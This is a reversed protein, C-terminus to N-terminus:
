LLLSMIDDKKIILVKNPLYQKMFDNNVYDRLDFTIGSDGIKEAYEYVIEKMDIEGKEDAFLKLVNDARYSNQKVIIKLTSNIMKDSLSTSSFYTDILGNAFGILKKKVESAKM